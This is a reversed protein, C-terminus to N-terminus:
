TQWLWDSWLQTIVRTEPSIHVLVCKSQTFPAYSALAWVCDRRISRLGSSNLKERKLADIRQRPIGANCCSGGQWSENVSRHLVRGPRACSESSAWCRRASNLYKEWEQTRINKAPLRGFYNVNKGCGARFKIETTCKGMWNGPAIFNHNTVTKLYRVNNPKWATHLFTLCRPEALILWRM